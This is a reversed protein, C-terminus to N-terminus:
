GVKLQPLNPPPEPLPRDAIGSADVWAQMAQAKEPTDFGFMTRGMEAGRGGAWSTYEAEGAIRAATADIEERDVRRWPVQRGICARYPLRKQANAFPNGRRRVVILPEAHLRTGRLSNPVTDRHVQALPV